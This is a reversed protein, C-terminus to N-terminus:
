GLLQAVARAGSGLFYTRAAYLPGLPEAVEACLHRPTAEPGDAEGARATSTSTVAAAADADPVDDACLLQTRKGILLRVRKVSGGQLPMDRGVASSQPMNSARLQGHTYYTLAPEFLEAESARMPRGAECGADLAGMCEGLSHALRPAELQGLWALSPPDLRLLVARIAEGVGAVRHVQTFFGGAAM